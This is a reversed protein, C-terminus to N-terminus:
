TSIGSCCIGHTPFKNCTVHMAVRPQGVSSMLCSRRSSSQYENMTAHTACKSSGKSPELCTAKSASVASTRDVKWTDNEYSTLLPSLAQPDPFNLSQSRQDIRGVQDTSTSVTTIIQYPTPRLLLNYITPQPPSSLVDTEVTKSLRVNNANFPKYLMGNSLM